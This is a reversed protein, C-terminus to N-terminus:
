GYTQGIWRIKSGRDRPASLGHSPTPGFDLPVKTWLIDSLSLLGISRFGITPWPPKRYLSQWQCHARRHPATLFTCLRDRACVRVCSRSALGLSPSTTIGILTQLIPHLRLLLLFSRLGSGTEDPLFSLLIAIRRIVVLLKRMKATNAM